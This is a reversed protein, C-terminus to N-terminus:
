QVCKATSVNMNTKLKPPCSDKKHSWQYGQKPSRTVDARPKLALTSRKKCAKKGTHDEFEGRTHCRSVTYLDANCNLRKSRHVQLCTWLFQHINPGPSSGMVMQAAFMARYINWEAVGARSNVHKVAGLHFTDCKPTRM